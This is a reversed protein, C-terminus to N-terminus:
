QICPRPLFALIAYSNARAQPMVAPELTEKNKKMIKWLTKPLM